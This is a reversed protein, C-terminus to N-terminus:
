SITLINVGFNATFTETDLMTVASGYDWWGILPKAPITPTDDYLVVYQFPGISGGAATWVADTGTLNGIGATESYANLVDIGGSTYGFGTTLDLLDTFVTDLSASPVANTLFVKLTDTNLNIISLGIYGVYSEFKNFTAM